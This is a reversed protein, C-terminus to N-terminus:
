IYQRPGRLSAHAHELASPPSLLQTPPYGTFMAQTVRGLWFEDNLTYLPFVAVQEAEQADPLMMPRSKSIRMCCYMGYRGSRSLYITTLRMYFSCPTCLHATNAYLAVSIPGSQGPPRSTTSAYCLSLTARKATLAYAGLDYDSVFYDNECLLEVGLRSGHQEGPLVCLLGTLSTFSLCIFLIIAGSNDYFSM